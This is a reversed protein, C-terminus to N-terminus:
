DGARLAELAAFAKERDPGDLFGRISRQVEPMVKPLDAAGLTQPDVGARQCARAISNSAFLPSLGSAAVLKDFM